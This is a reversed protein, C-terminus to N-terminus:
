SSFRISGDRLPLAIAFYKKKPILFFSSLSLVSFLIKNSRSQLFIKKSNNGESKGRVEPRRSDILVSSRGMIGDTSGPVAFEFSGRVDVAITGIFINGGRAHPVHIKKGFFPISSSIAERRM